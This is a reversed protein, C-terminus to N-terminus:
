LVGLLRISIRAFTEVETKQTDFLNSPGIVMVLILIATSYWTFSICSQIPNLCFFCLFPATCFACIKYPIIIYLYFLPGERGNENFGKGFFDRTRWNETERGKNIWDKIREGRKEDKSNREWENEKEWEQKTKRELFYSVGALPISLSKREKKRWTKRERKRELKGDNASQWEKPPFCCSDLLFNDKFKTSKKKLEKEEEGAKEM